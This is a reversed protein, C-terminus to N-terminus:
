LLTYIYQPLTTILFLFAFGDIRLTPVCLRRVCIVNLQKQHKFHLNIGRPPHFESQKRKTHKGARRFSTELMLSRGLKPSKAPIGGHVPRLRAGSIFAATFLYFARLLLFTIIRFGTGCHICFPLTISTQVVGVCGNARM